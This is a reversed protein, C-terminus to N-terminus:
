ISLSEQFHTLWKQLSKLVSPTVIWTNGDPIHGHMQNMGGEECVHPVGETNRRRQGLANQHCSTTVVHDTIFSNGQSVPHWTGASACFLPIDVVLILVLWIPEVEELLWIRAILDRYEFRPRSHMIWHLSISRNSIGFYWRVEKMYGYRPLLRM